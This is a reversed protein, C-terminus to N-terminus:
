HQHEDETNFFTNTNSLFAVQKTRKDIDNSHSLNQDPAIVHLIILQAMHHSGAAVQPEM